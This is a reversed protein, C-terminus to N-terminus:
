IYDILAVTAEAKDEQQPIDEIYSLLFRVWSKSLRSGEAEYHEIMKSIVTGISFGSTATKSKVLDLIKKMLKQDNKKLLTALLYSSSLSLGANKGFILKSLIENNFIANALSEESVINQFDFIMNEIAAIANGEWAVANPNHELIYLWMEMTKDIDIAIMKKLIKTIADEKSDWSDRLVSFSEILLTKKNIAM